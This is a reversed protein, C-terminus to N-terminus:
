SRKIASGGFLNAGKMDLANVATGAKTKPQKVKPQPPAKTGSKGGWPDGIYSKKGRAKGPSLQPADVTGVNAASTAGPTATEDLQSLRQEIRNIAAKIDRQKSWFSHDDSYEYNPDFEAKLKKLKDELEPRNARDKELADSRAKEDAAARKKDLRSKARALGQERKSIIKDHDGPYKFAKDMQAMAKSMTAKKTYDGLSIESLIDTVKM